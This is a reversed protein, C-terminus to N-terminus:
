LVPDAAGLGFTWRTSAPPQVLYSDTDIAPARHWVEVAPHDRNAHVHVPATVPTGHAPHAVIFTSPDIAPLRRPAFVAPHQGVDAASATGFACLSALSIAFYRNLPRTNM